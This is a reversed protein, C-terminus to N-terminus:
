RALAEFAADIERENSANLVRLERGRQQAAAQAVRMEAEANCLARRKM